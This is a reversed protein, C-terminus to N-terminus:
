PPDVLREDDRRLDYQSLCQIAVERLFLAPDDEPPCADILDGWTAVTEEHSIDREMALLDIKAANTLGTRKKETADFGDVVAKRLLPPGESAGLQRERKACNAMARASSVLALMVDRAPPWQMAAENCQNSLVPHVGLSVLKENNAIVRLAVSQRTAEGTRTLPGHKTPCSGDLFLAVDAERDALSTTETGIELFHPLARAGVCSLVRVQEVNWRSWPADCAALQSADQVLRLSRATPLADESQPPLPPDYDVVERQFDPFPVLVDRLATRMEQRQQKAVAAMEVAIGAPAVRTMVHSIGLVGSLAHCQM